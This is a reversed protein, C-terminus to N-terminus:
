QNEREAQLKQRVMSLRSQPDTADALCRVIIKQLLEQQGGPTAMKAIRISQKFAEKREQILRQVDRTNKTTAVLSAVRSLLNFNNIVIEALVSVNDENESLENSLAIESQAYCIIQEVTEASFPSVLFGRAGAKLLNFVTSIEMHRSMGILGCSQDFSHLQKVFELQSNDTSRSEFFIHSYKEHSATEIAERHTDVAIVRKLGLQNLSERLQQCMLPMPCAILVPASGSKIQPTGQM